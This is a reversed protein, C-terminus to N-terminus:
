DEEYDLQRIDNFIDGMLDAYGEKDEGVLLSGDKTKLEEFQERFTKTTM